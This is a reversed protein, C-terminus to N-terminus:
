EYRIPINKKIVGVPYDKLAWEIRYREYKTHWRLRVDILWNNDYIFRMTTPNKRRAELLTQPLSVRKDVNGCNTYFFATSSIQNENINLAIFNTIPILSEVLRSATKADNMAYLKDAVVGLPVTDHNTDPSGCDLIKLFNDIGATRSADWSTKKGIRTLLHCSTGNEMTILPTCMDPFTVSSISYPSIGTCNEIAHICAEALIDSTKITDSIVDAAIYREPLDYIDTRYSDALVTCIRYILADTYLSFKNVM